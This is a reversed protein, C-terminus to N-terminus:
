NRGYYTAGRTFSHKNQYDPTHETTAAVEEMVKDQGSKLITSINKYSPNPTYSLARTCAAKLRVLSYRDALKLVGMCAKYGQQEIRHYALIAKIM